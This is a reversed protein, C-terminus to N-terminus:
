CKLGEVYRAELFRNQPPPNQSYNLEAHAEERVATQERGKLERALNLHTGKKNNSAETEACSAKMKDDRHGQIM